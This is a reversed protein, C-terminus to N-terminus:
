WLLICQHHPLHQLTTQSPDLLLCFRQRQAGGAPTRVQARAARGVRRGAPLPRGRAARHAPGRGVREAAGGRGAGGARMHARRHGGRCLVGAALGAARACRAIRCAHRALSLGVLAPLSSAHAARPLIPNTIAAWGLQSQTHFGRVRGTAIVSPAWRIQCAPFVWAVGGTCWLAPQQHQNCLIRWGHRRRLVRWKM